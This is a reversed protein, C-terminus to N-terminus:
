SFQQPQWSLLCHIAQAYYHWWYLKVNIATTFNGSGPPFDEGSLCLNGPRNIATSWETNVTSQYQLM